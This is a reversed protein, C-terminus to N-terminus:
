RGDFFRGMCQQQKEELCVEWSVTVDVVARYDGGSPRFCIGVGVPTMGGRSGM